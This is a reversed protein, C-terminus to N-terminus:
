HFQNNPLLSPDTANPKTITEVKQKDNMELLQPVTVFNYGLQKLQAIIQPLAQVTTARNGGGDHMLVIGGPEAKRIVNRVLQEASYPRYDMSDVSWMVTVYNQEKAYDVVGNNLLGGPPRFALTKIGTTKYILKATDEIEHAATPQSMQRYWHHWTHNGIAHGDAIVQQAIEPHAALYQGVWFFTAKIDEKKLIELVQSTTRPWPGDDFTLAIAKELGLSKVKKIIKARFETPVSLTEALQQKGAGIISSVGEGQAQDIDQTPPTPIDSKVKPPQITAFPKPVFVNKNEEQGTISPTETTQAPILAIKQHIPTPPSTQPLPQIVQSTQQNSQNFPWSVGIAFSCAAVILTIFILRRLFIRNPKAM